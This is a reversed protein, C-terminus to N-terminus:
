EQKLKGFVKEENIGLNEVAHDQIADILHLLGVLESKPHIKLNLLESKQKRLREYSINNLLKKSLGM